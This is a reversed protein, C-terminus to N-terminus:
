VQERRLYVHYSSRGLERVWAPAPAARLDSLPFGARLLDLFDRGHPDLGCVGGVRCEWNPLGSQHLAAEIRSVPLALDIAAGVFARGAPSGIASVVLERVDPPIDAGLDTYYALGGPRLVRYAERFAAEPSAWFRLSATSVVLDLSADPFPLEMADALAFQIAPCGAAGAYAGALRVMEPSLDVGWCRASPCMRQLRITLWGPGCGVDLVDGGRFAVGSRYLAVAAQWRYVADFATRSFEAYDTTVPEAAWDPPAARTNV